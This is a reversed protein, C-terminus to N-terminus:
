RPGERDRQLADPARRVRTVADGLRAQERERAVLEDLARRQDPADAGAPQFLRADRRMREVHEGLLDDGDRSALFDGFAREVVQDPAGPWIPSKRAVVEVRHDLHMGFPDRLPASAQHASSQMAVSDRPGNGAPATRPQRRHRAAPGDGVGRLVLDDGFWFPDHDPLEVLVEGDLAQRAVDEEEPVIGPADPADLCPAHPHLVRMARRGADREPVALRGPAGRLQGADNRLEAGLHLRHQLIAGAGGVPGNTFARQRLRGGLLEDRIKARGFRREADQGRLVRQHGLSEEVIRAPHLQHHVRREARPLISSEAKGQALAEAAREVELQLRCGRVVRHEQRQARLM